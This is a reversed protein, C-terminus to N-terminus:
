LRDSIWETVKPVVNNKAHDWSQPGYIILVSAVVFGYIFAVIM